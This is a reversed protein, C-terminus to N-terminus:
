AKESTVTTSELALGCMDVGYELYIYGQEGWTVGWQNRVIWYPPSGSQALGVAQVCHDLQTGCNSTVIGGRYNQWTSADVCISLPSTGCVTSAMSSEGSPSQSIYKWNAVNAFVDAKNFKCSGTVGDGSSYPYSSYTEIGGANQVYKYALYPQGGNCGACTNDCSVIQQMSLKTLPGVKGLFYMTEIQETASFAWCSGCQGQNYIPTTAGKDVWNISCPPTAGAELPTMNRTVNDPRYTLYTAKFEEASLDSFQTVGYEAKNGPADNLKKSIEMNKVFVGFRYLEDAKTDYEKNYTKKFQKWEKLMSVMSLDIAFVGCVVLLLLVVATFRM